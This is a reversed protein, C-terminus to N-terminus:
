LDMFERTMCLKRLWGDMIGYNVQFYLTTGGRRSSESEFKRSFTLALM